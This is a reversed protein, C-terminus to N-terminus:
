GTIWHIMVMSRHERVPSKSVFRLQCLQKGKQYQLMAGKKDMMVEQEKWGKRSLESRYWQKNMSTSRYSSLTITESKVNMDLSHIRSIIHADRYIPFKIEPLKFTKNRTVVFSGASGGPVDRAQVSFSHSKNAYGVTLEKGMIQHKLQGLGKVKWKSEYYKMIDKSKRNSRFNQITMPHENYVMKEAVWEVQMGQMIKISPLKLDSIEEANVNGAVSFLVLAVFITKLYKM